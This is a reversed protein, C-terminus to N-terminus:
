KHKISVTNRKISSAAPPRLTIRLGNWFATFEYIIKGCATLHTSTSNYQTNGTSETNNTSRSKSVRRVIVEILLVSTAAFLGVSLITFLAIMDYLDLARSSTSKELSLNCEDVPKHKLEWHSFLGGQDMHELRFM